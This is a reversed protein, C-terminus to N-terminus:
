GVVVKTDAITIGKTGVLVPNLDIESIQPCDSIMLSITRIVTALADIDLAGKGRMGILLQWSRLSTLMTYSEKEGIPALRFCTDKFLETYIGGLGAMVLPGFSPDNLGGVIFENGVPLFQQILVGRIAAGPKNKECSKLIEDYAKKVEASSRLNTRVGGVDTKHLIDPSSVKAIVPYGIKEAIEQAEQASLAVAQNPIPLQYLAFLEAAIEESLLGQRGRLLQRAASARDDGVPDDTEEKEAKIKLLLALGNVAEEPTEFCAIGNQRLISRAAEVQAGGMFGTTVPLLPRIKKTEVIARAIESCPTMIQPTLLVAIGDTEPDDACSTLAVKYRDGLADGLIDVPNAFSAAPPLAAKLTAVTKPDLEALLLGAREAADTALVGPGGANTIIAIQRSPLPPSSRLLALLALFEQTTEALHIGAEQCAAQLGATSGALAGTHSSVAKAGRASVGAKILVIPKQQGIRKAAEVFAQGDKISELYLGIVKTAKDKECVELFSVEDLDTKNGISAIFSFYLNQSAAIDLIAVAMAGSQSLLAIDGAQKPTAAFSANLGIAPRLIGLCNPGVMSMGYKECTKKLAEEAAHGEKTGTEGFGASIVVLTKVKKKGCEEALAPVTAAPTVIVAMDIEQPIDTVSHFCQVGMLEDHKPNVPFIKGQYGSELLNKLIYHGLKKEEGSAGILAVSTPELTFVTKMTSFATM